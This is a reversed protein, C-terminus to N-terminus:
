TQWRFAQVGPVALTRLNKYSIHRMLKYDQHTVPNLPPPSSSFFFSVVQFHLRLPVTHFYYEHRSSSRIARSPQCLAIVCKLTSFDSQINPSYILLWGLDYFSSDHANILQGWMDNLEWRAGILTAKYILRATSLSDDTSLHLNDLPKISILM